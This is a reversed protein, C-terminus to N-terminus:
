RREKESLFPGFGKEAMRLRNGCFEAIHSLWKADQVYNEEQSSQAKEQEGRGGKLDSKGAEM